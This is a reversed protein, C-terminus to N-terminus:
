SFFFLVKQRKLKNLFILINSLNHHSLQICSSQITIRMIVYIIVPVLRIQPCEVFFLLYLTIFFIINFISYLSSFFITTSPLSSHYRLFLVHRYMDLLTKIRVQVAKLHQLSGTFFAEPKKRKLQYGHTILSFIYQCLGTIQLVSSNHQIFHILKKQGILNLFAVYLM